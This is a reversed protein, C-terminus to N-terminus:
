FRFYDPINKNEGEFIFQLAYTGGGDFDVRATNESLKTIQGLGTEGSSTSKKITEVPM